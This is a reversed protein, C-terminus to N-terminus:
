LTEEEDFWSVGDTIVEEGEMAVNELVKYVWRSLQEARIPGGTGSFGVITNENFIVERGNCKLM